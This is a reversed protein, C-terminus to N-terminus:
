TRKLGNPATALRDVIERGIEEAREIESPKLTVAGVVPHGGGGYQSCIKAIDHVRPKKSWPNSGVSVKARSRTALVAVCYQADPYLWYPIFKNYRDSGKGILSFSVVGREFKANDRITECTKKHHEFLPEFLQMVESECAIDEITAGDALRRIRPVMFRDNGHAEIVTMLKLAPEELTVASKADTFRAADILDAWYVLNDLETMRINFRSEAIDVILKCCSSYTPEFFKRGTADARLHEREADNVIGSIHHDFWWTLKDSITYRFDVVANIDGALVEEPVFSGGSQHDLGKYSFGLADSELERLFRTLVAASCMGDFCHGHYAILVKRSM